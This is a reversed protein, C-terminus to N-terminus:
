LNGTVQLKISGNDSVSRKVKYGKKLAVNTARYVSYMQVLGKLNDGFQKKLQQGPGWFDYLLTYNGDPMQVVGIEYQCGPLMIAHSCKGLQEKTIGEPLPYDGVHRGFWGYTTKGEIFLGGMEHAAQKLSELDNISVAIKTVHSM